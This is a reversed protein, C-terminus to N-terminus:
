EGKGMFITILLPHLDATALGTDKEKAKNEKEEGL